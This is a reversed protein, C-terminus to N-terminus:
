GLELHKVKGMFRYREERLTVSTLDCNTHSFDQLLTNDYYYRSTKSTTCLLLICGYCRSFRQHLTLIDVSPTVNYDRVNSDRSTLFASDFTRLM